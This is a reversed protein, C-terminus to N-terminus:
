GITCLPSILSNQCITSRSGVLGVLKLSRSVEGLSQSFNTELFGAHNDSVNYWNSFLSTCSNSLKVADKLALDCSFISPVLSFLHTSDTFLALFTGSIAAVFESDNQEPM